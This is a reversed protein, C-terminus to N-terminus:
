PISLRRRVVVLLQTLGIAGLGAWAAAGLLAAETAHATCLGAGLLTFATVVVRTPREWVTVVGVDDMGGATARARAYEQLVMLAGAAVALEGPAGLRWLAVLYLGDSVRDVVSDLVAGFRTARDTMVAVAGDLNDLLGSLVVVAIALLPWRGGADALVVVALAVVVGLLTLVDPLVGRRALPRASRFTIGLWWRAWGSERPDYGGHLASWRDFYGERDPLPATPRRATVAALTLVALAAAALGAPGALAADV